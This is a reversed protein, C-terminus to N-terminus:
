HNERFSDEYKWQGKLLFKTKLKDCSCCDWIKLLFCQNYIQAGNIIFKWENTPLSLWIKIIFKDQSGFDSSKQYTYQNKQAHM